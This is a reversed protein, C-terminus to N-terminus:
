SGMPADVVWIIDAVRVQVGRPCPESFGPLEEQTFGSQEEPLLRVWGVGAVEAERFRVVGLERVGAAYQFSHQTAKILAQPWGAKALVSDEDLGQQAAETEVESTM